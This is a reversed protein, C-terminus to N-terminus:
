ETSINTIRIRYKYISNLFNYLSLLQYSTNDDLNTAKSSFYLVLVCLLLVYWQFLM